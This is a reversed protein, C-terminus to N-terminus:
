SIEMNERSGRDKWAGKNIKSSKKTVGTTCLSLVM